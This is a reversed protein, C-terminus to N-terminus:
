LEDKLWDYVTDEKVEIHFQFAYAHDGYRLGSESIIGVKCGCEEKQFILPRAMGNSFRSNRLISEQKLIGHLGEM